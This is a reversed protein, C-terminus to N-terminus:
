DRSEDRIPEPELCPEHYREIIGKLISATFSIEPYEKQIAKAANDWDIEGM